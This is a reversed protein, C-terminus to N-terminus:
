EKIAKETNWAAQAEEPDDYLAAFWEPGLNKALVGKIGFMVHASQRMM